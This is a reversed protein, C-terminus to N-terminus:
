SAKKYYDIFQLLTEFDRMVVVLPDAGTLDYTLDIRGDAHITCYADDTSGSALRPQEDIAKICALLDSLYIKGAAIKEKDKNKM